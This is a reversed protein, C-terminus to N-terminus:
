ATDLGDQRKEWTSVPLVHEFSAMGRPLTGCVKVSKM